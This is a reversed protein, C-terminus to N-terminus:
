LPHTQVVQFEGGQLHGQHEPLLPAACCGSVSQNSSKVQRSTHKESGDNSLCPSISGRAEGGICGRRAAGGRRARRARLREVRPEVTNCGHPSRTLPPLACCSWSSAQQENGTQCAERQWRQLPSPFRKGEGRRRHLRSPCCRRATSSVDQPARGAALRTSLPPLACCVNISARQENGTECAEIAAM